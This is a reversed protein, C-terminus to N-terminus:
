KGKLLFRDKSRTEAISPGRGTAPRNSAGKRFETSFDAGRSCFATPVGCCSCTESPKKPLFFSDADGAGLGPASAPPLYAQRAGAKGTL